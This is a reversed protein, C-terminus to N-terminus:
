RCARGEQNLLQAARAFMDSLFQAMGADSVLVDFGRGQGVGAQVRLGRKEHDSIIRSEM